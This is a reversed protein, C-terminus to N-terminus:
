SRLNTEVSPGLTSRNNAKKQMTQCVERWPSRDVITIKMFSFPSWMVFCIQMMHLNGTLRALFDAYDSGTQDLGITKGDEM